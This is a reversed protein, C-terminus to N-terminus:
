FLYSLSLGGWPRFPKQPENLVYATLKASIHKRNMFRYAVSEFGSLSWETKLDNVHYRQIGSFTLGAGLSLGEVAAFNWAFGLPVIIDPHFDGNIGFLRYTSYGLRADISGRPLALTSVFNVSYYGAPGFAELM